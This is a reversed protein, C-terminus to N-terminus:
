VQSSSCREKMSQYIWSIDLSYYLSKASIQQM